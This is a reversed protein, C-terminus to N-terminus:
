AVGHLATILGPGTILQRGPPNKMLFGTQVLDSHGNTAPIRVTYVFEEPGANVSELLFLVIALAYRPM